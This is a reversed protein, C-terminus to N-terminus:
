IDLKEHCYLFAVINEIPIIQSDTNFSNFNNNVTIETTIIEIEKDALSIFEFRDVLNNTSM